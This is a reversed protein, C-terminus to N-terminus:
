PLYEIVFWGRNASTGSFAPNSDFTGGPNPILNIYNLGTRVNIGGAGLYTFDFYEVGGDQIIMVHVIRIKDYTCLSQTVQKSGANMNWIGIEIPASKILGGNVDNLAYSKAANAKSTADASATAISNALNKTMDFRYADMNGTFQPCDTIPSNSALAYYIRYTNYSNGDSHLKSDTDTLSPALYQSEHLPTVSGDFFYISGSLYIYGTSYTGPSGPTYTLGNLIAFGNAPLGLLLGLSNMLDETVNTIDTVFLPNGIGAQSLRINPFPIKASM